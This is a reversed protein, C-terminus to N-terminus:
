CLILEFLLHIPQIYMQKVHSLHGILEIFLLISRPPPLSLFNLVAWGIRFRVLSNKFNTIKRVIQDKRYYNKTGGEVVMDELKLFFPICGMVVKLVPSCHFAARGLGTGSM